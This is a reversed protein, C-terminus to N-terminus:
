YALNIVSQLLKLYHALIKRRICDICKGNVAQNKPKLTRLQLDQQHFMALTNYFASPGQWTSPNRVILVDIIGSITNQFVEGPHVIEIQFLQMCKAIHA